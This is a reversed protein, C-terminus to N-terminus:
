DDDEGAMGRLTHAGGAVILLLGILIIQWGPLDFPRVRDGLTAWVNFGALAILIGVAFQQVRLPM